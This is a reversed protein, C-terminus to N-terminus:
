LPNGCVPLNGNIDKPVAITSCAVRATTNPPPGATGRNITMGFHQGPDGAKACITPCCGSPGQAPDNNVCPQKATVGNTGSLAWCPPTNGNASCAKIETTTTSGDSNTTIDEVVCDAVPMNTNDLPFPSTICGAGINSIILQGLSQLAAQYSTDCISTLQHNKSSNVVTNIRVAPDGFFQTNQAAICSHQLVVACTKGDVPGPCTVYPGPPQPNPNALISEVDGTDGDIAVLIVDSPDVKVGGQGAAHSFFNVYRSVDYCKGQGSAPMGTVNGSTNPAAQCGPQLNGGSSGYPMLALNGGQNCMVGYQTGRYSLLAGYNATQAPDFLDTNPDTSCDDDEDTVWVVVLLADARLFDHNEAPQDHLARYVAELQQEFGCGKDGVSAMCSFTTALDQGAPLNNNGNLQNYDIFNLGGTPAACTADHASGLAQLKGGDGGPHCQGGGLNFQGAGLDSTVVGIHYWAPNSKGFDDLIKILQPFRAKLEAQKPSMSPSDDIMFLIDVKNKINQEVRVDTEQTIKPQPKEVPAQFCAWVGVLGVPALFM